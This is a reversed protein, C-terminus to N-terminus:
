PINGLRKILLILAVRLGVIKKASEAYGLIPFGRESNTNLQAAPGMIDPREFVYLCCFAGVELCFHRQMWPKNTLGDGRRERMRLVLPSISCHRHETIIRRPSCVRLPNIFRRSGSDRGAMMVFCRRHQLIEGSGLMQMLMSVQEHKTFM